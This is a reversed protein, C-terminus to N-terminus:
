SETQEKKAEEEYPNEWDEEGVAEFLAEKVTADYNTKDLYAKVEEATAVDGTAKEAIEACIKAYENLSMVASLRTEFIHMHRLPNGSYNSLRPTTFYSRADSEISQIKTVGKYSYDAANYSVTIQSTQPTKVPTQPATVVTVTTENNGSMKGRNIKKTSKPATQGESATYGGPLSAQSPKNDVAKESEPAKVDTKKGEEPSHTLVPFHKGDGVKGGTYPNKDGKKALTEFLAGKTERDYDLTNLYAVIEKNSLNDVSGKGSKKATTNAYALIGAFTEMTMKESLYDHYVQYRRYDQEDYPRGMEHATYFKALGSEYTKIKDLQEESYNSEDVNFNNEQWLKCNDEWYKENRREIFNDIFSTTNMYVKAKWGTMEFDSYNFYQTEKAYDKLNNFAALKEDSTLNKYEASNVFEYAMNWLVDYSGDLYSKYQESDLLIQNGDEPSFENDYLKSMPATGTEIYIKDFEKLVDKTHPNDGIDVPYYEMKEKFQVWKM